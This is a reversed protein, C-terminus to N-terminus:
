RAFNLKFEPFYYSLRIFFASYSDINYGPESIINNPYNKNEVGIGVLYRTSLFRYAELSTQYVTTWEEDSYSHRDAHIFAFGPGTKLRFSIFPLHFFLKFSFLLNYFDITHDERWRNYSFSPGFKFSLKSAGMPYELNGIKISPIGIVNNTKTTYPSVVDDVQDIKKIVNFKIGFTNPILQFSNSFFDFFKSKNQNPQTFEINENFRTQALKLQHLDYVLPRIEIKNDINEFNLILLHYSNFHLGMRALIPYPILKIDKKSSLHDIGYFSLFTEVKEPSIIQDCNRKNPNFNKEIWQKVISKSVFHSNDQPPLILINMCSDESLPNEDFHKEMTYFLQGSCELRGSSIYNLPNMGNPIIIPIIEGILPVREILPATQLVECKEIIKGPQGVDFPGQSRFHYQGIENNKVEVFLPTKGILVQDNQVVDLGRPLSDISIVEKDSKLYHCSSFALALIPLFIIKLKM